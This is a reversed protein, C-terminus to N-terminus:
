RPFRGSEPLDCHGIIKAGFGFGPPTKGALGILVLHIVKRSDKQRRNEDKKRM